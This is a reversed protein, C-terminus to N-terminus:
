TKILNLNVKEKKDSDGCGAYTVSYNITQDPFRDCVKQKLM